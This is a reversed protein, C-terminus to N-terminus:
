LSEPSVMIDISGPIIGQDQDRKRNENGRENEDRIVAKKHRAHSERRAHSVRYYSGHGNPIMLSSRRHFDSHAEERRRVVEKRNNNNLHRRSSHIQDNQHFHVQHRQNAEVDRITPHNVDLVDGDSKVTPGESRSIWIDGVRVLPNLFDSEAM